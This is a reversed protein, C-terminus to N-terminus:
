EGEFYLKQQPRSMPYATVVRVHGRRETYLVTLMLVAEEAEKPTVGHRALHQINAADWDFTV